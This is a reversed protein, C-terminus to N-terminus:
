RDIEGLVLDVSGLIVISDALLTGPLLQEGAQLAYFAPPRYRM